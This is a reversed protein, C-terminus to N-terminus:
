RHCHYTGSSRDHHCGNRDLGGSHAIAGFSTACAVM